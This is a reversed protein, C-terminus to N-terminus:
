PLTRGPMPRAAFNRNPETIDVIQFKVEPPPMDSAWEPIEGRWLGPKWETMEVEISNVFGGAVFEFMAVKRRAM